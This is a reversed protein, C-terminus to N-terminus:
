RGVVAEAMNWWWGDLVIKKAVGERWIVRWLVMGVVGIEVRGVAWLDGMEVRVTLGEAM